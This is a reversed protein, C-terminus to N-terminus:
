PALVRANVQAFWHFHDPDGDELLRIDSLTLRASSDIEIAIRKADLSAEIAAGIRGAHDEATEIVQEGSKRAGAFAHIDFTVTAGNVCAARRPQTVPAALKVFPWTPAGDPNISAAPVFALLGADAKLRALLARRVLRQLGTAM